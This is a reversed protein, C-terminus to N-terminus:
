YARFGERHWRVVTEPKVIALAERWSGWLRSLAIWFLRDGDRITPRSVSRQLVNIQQRLVLNELVLDRRSRCASRSFGVLTSVSILM